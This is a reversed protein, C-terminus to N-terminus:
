SHKDKPAKLDCVLGSQVNENPFLASLYTAVCLHVRCFEKETQSNPKTKTKNEKVFLLSYIYDEKM